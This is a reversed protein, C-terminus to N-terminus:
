SRLGRTQGRKPLNNDIQAQEFENARITVQRSLVQLNRYMAELRAEVLLRHQQYRQRELTLDRYRPEQRIGDEIDDKSLKEDKQRGKNREREGIRLRSAIDEMENDIQVLYARVHAVIEATFNYWGLHQAYLTSYAQNNQTTLEEPTVSGPYAFKPQQLVGLGKQALDAEVATLTSWREHVAQKTAASTGLQQPFHVGGHAPVRPPLREDQDDDNM